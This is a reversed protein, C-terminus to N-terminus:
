KFVCVNAVIMDFIIAAPRVARAETREDETHYIIYYLIIGYVIM